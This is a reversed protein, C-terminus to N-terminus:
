RAAKRARLPFYAAAASPKVVILETHGSLELQALMAERNKKEEASARRARIIVPTSV